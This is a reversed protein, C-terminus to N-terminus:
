ALVQLLGQMAYIAAQERVHARDGTFHKHTTTTIFPLPKATSKEHVGERRSFGFCVLGVPKDTTGGSPGAIGTISVSLTAVPSCALAGGAMQAAVDESVAGFTDLTDPNVGLLEIKSANSYTVFGRDFVASSGSVATLAAAVMGGTCSEATVLVQGKSRLAQLLMETETLFPFPM